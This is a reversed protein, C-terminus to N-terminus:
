VLAKKRERKGHSFLWASWLVLFVLIILWYAIQVQIIQPEYYEWNVAKGFWRERPILEHFPQVMELSSPARSPDWSFDVGGYAHGATVMTGKRMWTVGDVHGMSRTWAWGLFALVLIGLWFSKWCHLPRPTM